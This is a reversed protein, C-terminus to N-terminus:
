SFIVQFHDFYIDGDEVSVDDEEKDEEEVFHQNDDVTESHESISNTSVAPPKEEDDEFEAFDNDEPFHATVWINTAVLAIHIAVIWLKM